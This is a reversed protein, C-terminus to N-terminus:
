WWPPGWGWGRGSGLGVQTSPAAMSRLTDAGVSRKNRLALEMLRAQEKTLGKLQQPQGSPKLDLFDGSYKSSTTASPISRCTSSGRSNKRMESWIRRAPDAKVHCTLELFSDPSDSDPLCIDQSKNVSSPATGNEVTEIHSAPAKAPENKIPVVTDSSSGWNHQWCAQGPFIGVLATPRMSIKSILEQAKDKEYHFEILPILPNPDKNANSSDYRQHSWNSSSSFRKMVARAETKISTAHYSMGMTAATSGSYTPFASHKFTVKVDLYNTVTEGLQCELEAFLEASSERTRSPAKIVRGLKVKAITLVTEGAQLTRYHSSCQTM